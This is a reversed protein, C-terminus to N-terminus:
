PHAPKVKKLSDSDSDFGLKKELGLGFGFGLGPVAISMDVAPFLQQQGAAQGVTYTSCKLRYDLKPCIARYPKLHGKFALCPVKKLPPPDQATHPTYMPFYWHCGVVKVFIKLSGFHGRM